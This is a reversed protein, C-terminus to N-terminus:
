LHDRGNVVVHLKSTIEVMESSTCYWKGSVVIHTTTTTTTTTTKKTTRTTTTTTTTM